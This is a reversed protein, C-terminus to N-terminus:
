LRNNQNQITYENLDFMWTGSITDYCIIQHEYCEKMGPWFGTWVDPNAVDDPCDCSLLQGGCNTCRATDCSIDHVEGIKVGCDPCTPRPKTEKWIEETKERIQQESLGKQKASIFM